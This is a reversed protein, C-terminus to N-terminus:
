KTFPPVLTGSVKRPLDQPATDVIITSAAQKKKKRM